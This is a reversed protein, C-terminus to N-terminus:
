RRQRRPPPSAPRRRWSRVAHAHYYQVGMWDGAVIGPIPGHRGCRRASSRTCRWAPPTTPVPPSQAGSSSPLDRGAAGRRPRSQPSRRRTPRAYARTARRCLYPNREGPPQLGELYGFLAVIQPENVTCAYPMLDGLANAVRECYREFSSSRRPALWGGREALWRPLTFHHLTVFATLELGGPHGARAPLPRARRASSARACARHAVVRAVPPPRETRAGRAALLGRRLPPVPRDRRGVARAGDVRARAGVGVLRQRRQRGGGPPRGDLVRLSLGRSLGARPLEGNTVGPGHGPRDGPGGRCTGTPRTSSRSAPPATAASSSTPSGRSSTACGLDQAHERLRDHLRRALAKTAVLERSPLDVLEGDLGHRAALWKNEDLMEYPTTVWSPAREFHEALEKVMAQILAALGLTHEVRTQADMARIEVTGFTPAAPRRVLPVHLGRDRGSEVMFGIRQEYDDWDDYCPPIGVRPFARFIPMRTSALGTADARWFPSNASLALLIPVHVRMGNAVHIAKDAGDVGVHVHLGFIIEQRAVFRLASILDRYRPRAAIRQDEWMAFPHTGASGICLDRTKATDRVQRRLARLQAGAEPVTKCPKTAIELVSEMLEPKIEGDAAEELLAEISNSLAYSESDLIMLEEEIGVTYSPTTFNSKVFTPLRGRAPADYHSTMVVAASSVVVRM